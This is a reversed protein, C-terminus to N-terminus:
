QEIAEQWTQRLEALSMRACEHDGDTVRLEESGDVTGIVAHPVDALRAQIADLQEPDVELLYRAPDEAFARAERSPDGDVAFSALDVTLGLGGAFAMEAVAPLVGGESPDHAARVLGDRILGHVVRAIHPGAQLDVAPLEDRGIAADGGIRLYHSGGMRDSTLGVLLLASGASKLDMTMATSEDPVMSMGSILLTPPVRITRGDETSFQNSLSDKGSM